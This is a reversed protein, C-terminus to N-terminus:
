WYVYYYQAIKMCESHMGYPGLEKGYVILRFRFRPLVFFIFRYDTQLKNQELSM